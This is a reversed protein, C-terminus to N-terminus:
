HNVGEHEAGAATQKSLAPARRQPQDIGDDRGFAPGSPWRRVPSPALVMLIGESRGRAVTILGAVASASFLRARGHLLVHEAGVALRLRAAGSTSSLTISFTRATSSSIRAAPAQTNVRPSCSSLV